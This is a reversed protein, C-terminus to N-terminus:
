RFIGDHPDGQKSLQILSTTDRQERQKNAEQFLLRMLSGWGISVGPSRLAEAYLNSIVCSFVGKYLHLINIETRNRVNVTLLHYM